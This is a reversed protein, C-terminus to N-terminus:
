SNEKESSKPAQEAIDKANAPQLEGSGGCNGCAIVPANESPYHPKGDAYRLGSGDCFSCREPEAGRIQTLATELKKNREALAKNEAILTTEIKEVRETLNKRAIELADDLEKLNANEAVLFEIRRERGANEATLRTLEKGVAMMGEVKFGNVELPRKLEAIEKAQADLRSRMDASCQQQHSAFVKYANMDEIEKKTIWLPKLCIKCIITCGEKTQDKTPIKPNCGVKQKWEPWGEITKKAHAFHDPQEAKASELLSLAKAYRCEQWHGNARNRGCHLCTHNEQFGLWEIEKLLSTAQKIIEDKNM